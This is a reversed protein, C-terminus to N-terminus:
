EIEYIRVTVTDPASTVTGSGKYKVTLPVEHEGAALGKVNISLTFDSEAASDSGAVSISVNGSIIKADYRSDDLNRINISSSKISISSTAEGEIYIEATPSKQKSSLEVGDPLVLTLKVETTATFGSIDIYETSVSTIDSLAAESGRLVVTDENKIGEYRYGTPPDGTINVTLPVKKTHYLSAKIEATDQSLTINDVTNDSRDVPELKATMIQDTSEIKSIDVDAAVYAVKAVLSEAGSINVAKDGTLDAEVERSSGAEGTYKVKVARSETVLKEVNIQVTVTSDSALSANKNVRIDVAVSNTGAICQSVDATATFSGSDMAALVKRSGEVTADVTIDTDNAIALGRENLVDENVFQVPIDRFTEKQVPNVAYVVYCWLGISIIFALIVNAIKNNFM